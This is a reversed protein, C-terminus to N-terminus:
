NGYIISSSIFTEWHRFKGDSHVCSKSYLINVPRRSCIEVAKPWWRTSKVAVYKSFFASTYAQWKCNICQFVYFICCHNYFERGSTRRFNSSKFSKGEPFGPHQEQLKALKLLVGTAIKVWKESTIYFNIGTM